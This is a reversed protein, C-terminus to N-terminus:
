NPVLYNIFFRYLGMYVTSDYIIRWKRDATYMPVGSFDMWGGQFLLLPSDSVLDGPDCDFDLLIMSGTHFNVEGHTLLRASNNRFTVAGGELVTLSGVPQQFDRVVLESGYPVIIDPYQSGNYLYVPEVAANSEANAHALAAPCLAILSACVLYKM